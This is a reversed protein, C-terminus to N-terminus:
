WSDNDILLYGFFGFIPVLISGLILEVLLMLIRELVTQPNIFSWVFWLLVFPVIWTAIGLITKITM